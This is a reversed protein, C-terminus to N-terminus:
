LTRTIPDECNENLLFYGFLGKSDALIKACQYSSRSSECQFDDGNMLVCAGILEAQIALIQDCNRNMVALQYHPAQVALSPCEDEIIINHCNNIAKKQDANLVICSVRPIEIPPGELDEGMTETETKVESNQLAAPQASELGLERMTQCSFLSNLLFVILIVHTRPILM